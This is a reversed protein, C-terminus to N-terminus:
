YTQILYQYHWYSVSIELGFYLMILLVIQKTRAVEIYQNLFQFRKDNVTIHNVFHLLRLIFMLIRGFQSNQAVLNRIGPYERTSFQTPCIKVM